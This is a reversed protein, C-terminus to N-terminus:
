KTVDCKKMRLVFHIKCLYNNYKEFLRRGYKGCEESGAGTVIELQLQRSKLCLLMKSAQGLVRLENFLTNNEHETM